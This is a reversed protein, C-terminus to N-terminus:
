INSTLTNIYKNMVNIYMDYTFTNNILLKIDSYQQCRFARLVDKLQMSEFQLVSEFQLADEFQLIVKFSMTM